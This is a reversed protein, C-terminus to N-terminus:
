KMWQPALAVQAIELDPMYPKIDLVVTGNLADLGKVSLVNDAIGLLKVTTIGIPNPRFQTHTAFVGTLPWDARDRPHRVLDTAPNFHVQHLHFVMTIHSYEELGRLGPVLAEDLRIESVVDAWDTFEITTVPSSVVGIGHLAIEKEM